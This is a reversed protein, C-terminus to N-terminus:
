PRTPRLEACSVGAARVPRRSMGPWRSRRSRRSSTTRSGTRTSPARPAHDHDEDPELRRRVEVDDPMGGSAYAAWNLKEVKLINMWFVVDKATVTEGNSWRYPKLTFSVVTNRNTYKPTSALSLSPNLAPSSGTGFWFLPRYLLHQLDSVNDVSFFAVGMFPFIYNPIASPLSRSTPPVERRCRHRAGARRARAPSPSCCWGRSQWRQPLSVSGVAADPQDGHRAIGGQEAGECTSDVQNWSRTVDRVQTAIRAEPRVSTAHLKGIPHHREHEGIDLPRRPQRALQPVLLEREHQLIVPVPQASAEVAVTADHDARLAVPEEHHEPARDFGDSRDLLGARRQRPQRQRHPEAHVGTDRDEPRAVVDPDVHM